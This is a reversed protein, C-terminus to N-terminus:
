CLNNGESNRDKLDREAINSLEQQIDEVEKTLKNM